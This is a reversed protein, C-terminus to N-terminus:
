AFSVQSVILTVQLLTFVSICYQSFLESSNDTLHPICCCLFLVNYATFDAYFCYHVFVTLFALTAPSFSTGSSLIADSWNLLLITFHGKSMLTEAIFLPPPILFVYVLCLLRRQIGAGNFVTKRSKLSKAFILDFNEQQM